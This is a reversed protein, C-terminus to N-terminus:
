SSWCLPLWCGVRRTYNDYADGFRSRLDHEELPRVVGDWVLGGMVVYLAVVPSGLWAAVGLGQALGAVAMPNRVWRYPGEVVLEVPSELPLPTGGGRRVMVVSSWVGLCGALVFVLGGCWATVPGTGVGPVGSADAARDLLLPILFLFVSWFVAAQVATRIGLARRSVRTAVRFNREVGSGGAALWVCVLSAGAAGSMVFAGLWGEGSGISMGWCLLAAYAVAGAVVGAALGAWRASSLCARWAVLSGAVFLVLDPWALAGILEERGWRPVFWARTVPALWLMVWWAVGSMAQLAFYHGAARNCVGRWGNPAEM